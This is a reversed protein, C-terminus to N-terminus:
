PVPILRVVRGPTSASLPITGGAPNPVGTPDQLAVYFYGDPSQVVDRVRGFQDFIVEQNVVARDRIELRRLAQGLLGGVFLSTNKWGPYRDGTYFTIGAPAFTPTYHIIPEDMGPLSLAVGPQGSKSAMPWGYNHGREIINIEDGTNPGHESEWLIGTVPDWALGEPNRHGYSWITRVASPTDVFPNDAPVSGDDNVRHIKGLPTKLDQANAPNGREGLTFFLHGQRDFILRCGYHAGATTYLEAPARFVLSQDTWQGRENIRGRVIVTMSPARPPGDRGGRGVTAAAPEPATSPPAVYGPQDESYALYVWHNRAYDPHVEVDLYGGDQQVHAAPTGTIPESLKGHDVIRLRGDRETVLMRGDPLFALAWPTMVGSAVVEIRFAQKASHVVVGDPNSIFTPRPHAAATQTRIHQMLQFIQLETLSRGFAPMEADPVGNRIANGIRADDARNLWAPDFLNPARGATTGTGHCDACHETWLVAGPSSGTNAGGRGQPFRAAEVACAACVAVICTTFTWTKM